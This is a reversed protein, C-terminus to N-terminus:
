TTIDGKPRNPSVLDNSDFHVQKTKPTEDSAGQKWYGATGTLHICGSFFSWLCCVVSLLGLVYAGLFNKSNKGKKM